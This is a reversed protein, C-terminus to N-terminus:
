KCKCWVKGKTNAGFRATQMHVLGQQRCKIQVLTKINRNAGFRATEMQVLGQQKWKWWVKSNAKVGVKATQM